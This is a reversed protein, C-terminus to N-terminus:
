HRRPRGLEVYAKTGVKSENVHSGWGPAKKQRQGRLM